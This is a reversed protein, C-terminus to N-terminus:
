TSHVILKNKGKESTDYIYFKIEPYRKSIEEKVKKIMHKVNDTDDDSFGVSMQNYEDKDMKEFSLIVKKVFDDLANGKEKKIDAYRNNFSVPYYYNSEIYKKIIEDQTGTFDYNDSINEVMEEKEEDSFHNEIIISVGEKLTDPSQPRATIISMPKAKILAEKFDNFSPAFDQNELSEEVNRIFERDDNFETFANKIDNDPYRYEPSNKLEAYESTTLKVKSWEDGDMKDMHIMTPMHLINDDWDFSYARMTIEYLLRRKM